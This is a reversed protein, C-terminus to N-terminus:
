ENIWTEFAAGHVGCSLFSQYRERNSNSIGKPQESDSAATAQQENVVMATTGGFDKRM